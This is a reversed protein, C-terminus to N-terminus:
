LINMTYRDVVSRVNPVFGLIGRITFLTGVIVGLLKIPGKMGDTGRIFYLTGGLVAVGGILEYVNSNLYPAIYGVAILGAIGGVGYEVLRRNETTMLEM